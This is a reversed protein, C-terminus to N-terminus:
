RTVSFNAPISRCGSATLLAWIPRTNSSSIRLNASSEFSVAPSCKVGRSTIRSM